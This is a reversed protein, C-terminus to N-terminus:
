KDDLIAKIDSVWFVPRIGIENAVNAGRPGIQGRALVRAAMNQKEDPSRLVWKSGGHKLELQGDTKANPEPSVNWKRDVAEYIKESLDYNAQRDRNEPLM